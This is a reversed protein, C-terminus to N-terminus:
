TLMGKENLTIWASCDSLSGVFRSEQQYRDYLRINEVVEWVQAKTGWPLVSYKTM